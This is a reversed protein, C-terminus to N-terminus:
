TSRDRVRQAIATALAAITPNDYLVTPPLRLHLWKELEGSIEVSAISDLGYALMPKSPDIEAVDVKLEAAFRRLLFQQIEAETPPANETTM